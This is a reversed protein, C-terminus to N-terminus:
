QGATPSWTHACMRASCQVTQPEVCFHRPPGAYGAAHWTSLAGTFGLTCVLPGTATYLLPVVWRRKSAEFPAGQLSHYVLLVDVALNVAFSGLLGGGLVLYQVGGSSSCRGPWAGTVGAWTLLIVIWAVHFFASMLAPVAVIDTSFHWRRGWLQM